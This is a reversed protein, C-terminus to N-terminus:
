ALCSADIMHFTILNAITFFKTRVCKQRPRAKGIWSSRTAERRSTKHDAAQQKQDGSSACLLVLCWRRDGGPWIGLSWVGEGAPEGRDAASPNTTKNIITIHARKQPSPRLLLHSYIPLCVYVRRTGNFVASRGSVTRTEGRSGRRGGNAGRERASVESVSVEQQRGVLCM